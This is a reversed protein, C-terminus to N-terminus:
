LRKAIERAAEEHNSACPHLLDRAEKDVHVYLDTRNIYCMYKFYSMTIYKVDKCMVKAMKSLYFNEALENYRNLYRSEWSTSLNINEVIEGDDANDKHHWPGVDIYRNSFFHRYRDGTTWNMVIAYPKPFKELCITLLTAILQNSGGPYGLNVVQRGTIKELYYPLTEDGAVGVGFTCSCGFLVIADKWNIQDWEYTRYGSSNVKYVIEKTLYKWDSPQTKKNREFNEPGDTGSWRFDLNGMGDGYTISSCFFFPHQKNEIYGPFYPPHENGLEGKVMDYSPWVDCNDDLNHRPNDWLSIPRFDKM